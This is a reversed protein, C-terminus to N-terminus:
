TFAERLSFAKVPNVAAASVAEMTMGSTASAASPTEGDRLFKKSLMEAPPTTSAAIRPAIIPTELKSGLICTIYREIAIFLIIM